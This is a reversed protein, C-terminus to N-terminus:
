PKESLIIYYRLSNPDKNPHTTAIQLLLKLPKKLKNKSNGSNSLESFNLTIPFTQISQDEQSQKSDSLSDKLTTEFVLFQDTPTIYYIKLEPTSSTSIWTPHFGYPLQSYTHPPIGKPAPTKLIKNDLTISLYSDKLNYYAEYQLQDDIIATAATQPLPVRAASLFNSIPLLFLVFLYHSKSKM